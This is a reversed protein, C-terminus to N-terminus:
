IVPSDTEFRKLKDLPDLNVQRRCPDLSFIVWAKVRVRSGQVREAADVM